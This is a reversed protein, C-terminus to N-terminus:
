EDENSKIVKYGKKILDKIGQTYNEDKEGTYIFKQFTDIMYGCRIPHPEKIIKSM